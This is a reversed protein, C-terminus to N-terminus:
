PGRDPRCNISGQRRGAARRIALAGPLAADGRALGTQCRCMFRQRIYNESVLGCRGGLVGASARRGILLTAMGARLGLM